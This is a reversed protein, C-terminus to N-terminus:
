SWRNSKAHNVQLPLSCFFFASSSRPSNGKYLTTTHADVGVYRRFMICFIFWGAVGTRENWTLSYTAILSSWHCNM